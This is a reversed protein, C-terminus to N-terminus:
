RTYYYEIATSLQNNNQSNQVFNIRMVIKIGDDIPRIGGSLRFYNNVANDYVTKISEHTTYGQLAPGFTFNTIPAITFGDFSVPVLIGPGNPSYAGPYNGPHGPDGIFFVQGALAPSITTHIPVAVNNNQNLSCSTAGIALILFLFLKLTTKM